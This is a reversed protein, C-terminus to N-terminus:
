LGATVVNVKDTIEKVLKDQKYFQAVQSCYSMIQIGEELESQVAKFKKTGKFTRYYTAKANSTEVIQKLLTNAKEIAGAQFYGEALRVSFVDHAINYEPLVKQCYDLAKIASDKKSQDRKM